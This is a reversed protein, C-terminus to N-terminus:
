EGKKGIGLLKEANKHFIMEKEEDSIPLSRVLDIQGQHLRLPFDTGFLIKDMGHKRMMDVMIAPDLFGFVSSTDLYLNKGILYKMAKDWSFVGGMHAGIVVLEPYRELMNSLREPSSRDSTKDGLHFLIPLNLLICEEYIPFMKEDDINFNQFEAHLKIGHLGLEKVQHLEGKIDRCAYHISGFGIYDPNEQVTQYVFHNLDKVQSPKTASSLLVLGDVHSAKASKQLESFYGHAEPTIHYYDILQDTAKQAIKDPFLHAHFDIIHYSQKM